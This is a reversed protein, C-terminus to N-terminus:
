GGIYESFHTRKKPATYLHAICERIFRDEGTASCNCVCSSSDGTLRTM